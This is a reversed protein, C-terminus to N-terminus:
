LNSIYFLSWL